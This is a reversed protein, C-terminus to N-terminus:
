ESKNEADKEVEEVETVFIERDKNWGTNQKVVAVIHKGREVNIAIVGSRVGMLLPTKKDKHNGVKAIIDSFWKLISEHEDYDRLDGWISVTYRSLCCDDPNVSISYQLSGESGCPVTIMEFGGNVGEVDSDQIGMIKKVDDLEQNAIGSNVMADFRICGAIHTWVSM